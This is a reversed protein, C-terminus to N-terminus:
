SGTKELFMNFALLGNTAAVRAFLPPATVCREGVWRDFVAGGVRRKSLRGAGAATVCREGVWRDSVAGGAGAATVCREGVWRDYVARGWGGSLFAGRAAGECRDSVAGWPLSSSSSKALYLPLYPPPARAEAWNPESEAREPPANAVVGALEGFSSWQPEHMRSPSLASPRHTQSSAM